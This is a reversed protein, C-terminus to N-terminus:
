RLCCDHPNLDLVAPTVDPDEALKKTVPQRELFVPAKWKNLEGGACCQVLLNQAKHFCLWAM